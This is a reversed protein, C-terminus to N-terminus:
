IEYVRSEIHHLKVSTLLHTLQNLLSIALSIEPEDNKLFIWLFSLTCFVLSRKSIDNQADLSTCPWRKLYKMFEPKENINTTTYDNVYFFLCSM